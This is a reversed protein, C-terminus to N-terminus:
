LGLGDLQEVRAAINLDGLHECTLAHFRNVASERCLRCRCTQSRDHYGPTECIKHHFGHATMRTYAHRHRQSARKWQQDQFAPGEVFAENDFEGERERRHQEYQAWQEEALDLGRNKLDIFLAPTDCLHLCLTASANKPLRLARKLFLTKARDMEVMQKWTLYTSISSYGYTLIPLVKMEFIKLATSVSTLHLQSLSGIASLTNLKRRRLHKTFSLSQQLSIGLYDYSTCVDVKERGYKFADRRALRGGRRFKMVKTKRINVKIGNERCWEHLVHFGDNLPGPSDGYMVLDDAYFLIQLDPVSRLATALDSIFAIFLTPSLSDGQLVGRNQTIANSKRLGDFVQINNSGLISTVLRLTLGKIGFQARLKEALKVRDVSDFAKEFDVFAAYAKGKPRQIREKLYNLLIEIAERAGRNPRFGFQEPPLHDHIKSMIRRNLLGTLLKFATCLLAIGRYNGPENTPGKGKYLAIVVSQRWQSALTGLSLCVNMLLTWLPLLLSVSAKLHENTVRDPGAAKKEKLSSMARHVEIQSFPQNFWAAEKEDADQTAPLDLEPTRGDPNLLRGFHTEWETLPVPAAIPKRKSAFLHWPKVEVDQIMKDLAAEEFLRRSEKCCAKYLRRKEWFGPTLRQDWAEEKRKKCEADFWPKHTRGKPRKIDPAADLISQSLVDAARSVDGERLLHEVNAINPDAELARLNVERKKRAMAELEEEAEAEWTSMVKLHRRDLSPVTTVSVPRVDSFVLDIVSRGQPGVFTHKETNSRLELNFQERLVEALIEGRDGSDIRCNFDGLVITRRRNPPLTSIAASVGEIVDELPTAPSFYFAVIDYVKTRVAVHVNSLSVLVPDTHPKAFVALGSGMVARPAPSVFPYYGELAYTDETILTETAVLVDADEFLNADPSNRQLGQLGEVNWM